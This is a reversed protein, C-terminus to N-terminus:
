GERPEGAGHHEGELLELKDLARGGEASRVRAHEEPVHKGVHRGGDDDHGAELCNPWVGIQKGLQRHACRPRGAARRAGGSALDLPRFSEQEGVHEIVLGMVAALHMTQQRLAAGLRAIGIQREQPKLLRYTKRRPIPSAGRWVRM